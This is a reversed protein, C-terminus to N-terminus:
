QASWYADAVKDLEALVEDLTEPNIIFKAFQDVAVECIPTPTAEWYRNLVRYGDNNITDAIKVKIEPLFDVRSKPNAPYSKLLEAFSANGEPSMWYDVVEMISEQNMANKSVLMPSIELVVNKGAAPNHSPLIFAGITEEPVGNATLTSSLYWTGFLAMAVKGQNFDRAGGAWVDSGPPTFYGKEIMDAWLVFAERVRPDTYKARGECLDQYLDPDQGIIM